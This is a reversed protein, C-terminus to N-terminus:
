FPFYESERSMFYDGVEGFLAEVAQSYARLLDETVFLGEGTLPAFVPQLPPPGMEQYLDAFIPNTFIEPRRARLEQMSGGESHKVSNAVLRLEDVADWSSLARVNLGYHDQYWDAVIRLQADRPPDVHFSGDRCSEAFQQEFLHYLGSAMLNLMAQRLASMTQYWSISHQQADDAIDAQDTYEGAQAGARHFYEDAEDDARRDLNAFSPLVDNFICQSFLQVPVVFRRNIQLAMYSGAYSM